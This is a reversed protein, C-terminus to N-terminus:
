IGVGTMPLRTSVLVGGAPIFSIGSSGTFVIEGTPLTTKIHLSVNTGSFVLTGTTAFTNTHIPITTGSYTITGTPSITHITNGAFPATGSFVVTGSPIVIKDRILPSTNSFTVTGSPAYVKTAVFANTASFTLTGGASFVVSNGGSVQPGWMRRPIPVVLQWPNDALRRHEIDSLARNWIAILRIDGVWGFLNANQSDGLILSGSLTGVAAASNTTVAGQNVGNKYIRSKTSANFDYSAAAKVWEGAVWFGPFAETTFCANGNTPYMFVRDSNTYGQGFGWNMSAHYLNIPARRASLASPRVFAFQTWANSAAIATSVPALLSGSSGTTNIRLPGKTVGTNPTRLTRTVVDYDNVYLHVLGRTLPNTLNIRGLLSPQQVRAKRDIGPM